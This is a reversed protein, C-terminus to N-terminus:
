RTSGIHEYEAIQKLSVDRMDQGRRWAEYWELTKDLATDLNWRPKWGLRARAKSSDLKLYLTEHPHFNTDQKWEFDSINEAIRDVIWSVPRAEDTDPGFNWAEAFASGDTSLRKALNLYGSLPDLVHQWPRVASPNRVLINEGSTLARVCDPILRDKAWDGGGIVNGARVTALSPGEPNDTFFSRRYAASVLEASAKSSSYPDHGGLPEDERYGWVWERNEYCKDTTVVIVAKIGTMRRVAELLNVTGMVNTSYTSVPDAYSDLVIAQAALHIVIEPATDRLTAELLELNRVDGTISRVLEHLGTLRYLSPETPPTLSYGTVQAGLRHLWLSLWSGKFGTHGTVFVRKDHFYNDLM